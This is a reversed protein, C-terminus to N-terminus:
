GGNGEKLESPEISRLEALVRMLLRTLMSAVIIILAAAFYPIYAGTSEDSQRGIASLVYGGMAVLFAYMFAGWALWFRRAGLVGWRRVALSQRLDVPSTCFKLLKTGLCHLSMPYYDLFM